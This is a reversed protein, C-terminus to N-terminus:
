ASTNLGISGIPEVDGLAGGSGWLGNPGVDSTAGWLGLTRPSSMARPEGRVGFVTPDSMVLLEECAWLEHARRRKPSGWLGWLNNPIVDGVAGWSGLTLPSSM